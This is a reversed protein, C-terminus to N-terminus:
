QLESVITSQMCFSRVLSTLALLDLSFVFVGYIVPFRFTGSGRSDGLTFM